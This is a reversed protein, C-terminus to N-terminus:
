PTWISEFKAFDIYTVQKSNGTKIDVLFINSVQEEFINVLIVNTGPFWYYPNMVFTSKIPVKSLQDNYISYFYLERITQDKSISLFVIGSNDPAWIPYVDEGSTSIGCSKEGTEYTMLCLEVDENNWRSFAITKGDPSWSPPYGLAYEGVETLQQLGLGDSNISFLTYKTTITDDTAFFILSNETPSWQPSFMNKMVQPSRRVCCGDSEIITVYSGGDTRSIYALKSSDYSWTIFIKETWDAAITNQTDAVLSTLNLSSHTESIDTSIYAIQKGDPSIAGWHNDVDPNGVEATTIQALADECGEAQHICSLDLTFLQISNSTSNPDTDSVLLTGTINSFPNTTPAPESQMPKITPVDTIEGMTNLPTKGIGNQNSNPDNITTDTTTACGVLLILGLFSWIMLTKKKMEVVYKSSTKHM